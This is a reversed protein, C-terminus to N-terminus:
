EEEGLGGVGGRQFVSGVKGEVVTKVLGSAAYMLQRRQGGAQPNSLLQMFMVRYKYSYAKTRYLLALDEKCRRCSKGSAFTM